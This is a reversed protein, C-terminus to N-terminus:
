FVEAFNISSNAACLVGDGAFVNVAAAVGGSTRDEFGNRLLSPRGLKIDLDDSSDVAASRFILFGPLSGSSRSPLCGAM